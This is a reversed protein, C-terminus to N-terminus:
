INIIGVQILWISTYCCDVIYIIVLTCHSLTICCCPGPVVGVEWPQWWQTHRLPLTGRGVSVGRLLRYAFPLTCSRDYQTMPPFRGAGVHMVWGSWFLFLVCNFIRWILYKNEICSNVISIYAIHIDFYEAYYWSCM